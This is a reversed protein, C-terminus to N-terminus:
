WCIPTGPIKSLMMWYHSIIKHSRSFYYDVFLWTIKIQMNVQVSLYSFYHYFSMRGRVAAM